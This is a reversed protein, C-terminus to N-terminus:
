KEEDTESDWGNMSIKHKELHHTIEEIMRDNIGDNKIQIKTECMNCKWTLKCSGYELVFDVNCINSSSYGM